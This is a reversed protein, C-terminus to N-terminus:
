PRRYGEGARSQLERSITALFQEPDPKGDPFLRERLERGEQSIWAEDIAAQIERAVEDATLGRAAAVAQISETATM